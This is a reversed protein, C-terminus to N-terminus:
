AYRPCLAEVQQMAMGHKKEFLEQMGPTLEERWGGSKGVRFFKPAKGHLTEFTDIEAAHNPKLPLDLETVARIVTPIPEAILDDYWIRAAPRALWALAHLGWNTSLTRGGVMDALIETITDPSNMYDKAFRAFSVVADRGDRLLHIAPYDIPAHQLAHTKVFHVPLTENCDDPWMECNSFAGVIDLREPYCTYTPLGYVREIVHRLFTVGSRPYAALWVVGM